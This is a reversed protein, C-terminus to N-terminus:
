PIRCCCNKDPAVSNNDDSSSAKAADASELPSEMITDTVSDDTTMSFDVDLCCGGCSTGCVCRNEPCSCKGGCCLKPLNVSPVKEFGYAVDRPDLQVGNGLRRHPPPAPLAAAREFFRHLSTTKNIFDLSSSVVSPSTAAAPLSSLPSTSCQLAHGSENDICTQCQGDACCNNLDKAAYEPGRHEVCGPCTCQVGCTCGSGALSAITSMPPMFGFDPIANVTPSSSSEPSSQIPPLELIPSPSCCSPPDINHHHNTQKNYIQRVNFSQSVHPKTSGSPSPVGNSPATKATPHPPPMLAIRSAHVHTPAQHAPTVSDVPDSDDHLQSRRCDCRWVSKCSCPNLLTDVLELM